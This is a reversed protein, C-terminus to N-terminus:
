LAYVNRIGLETGCILTKWFFGNMGVLLVGLSYM